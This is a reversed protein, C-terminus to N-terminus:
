RAYQFLKQMLPDANNMGCRKLGYYLLTLIGHKRGISVVQELDIDKPLMQPTGTLAARIISVVGGQINDM